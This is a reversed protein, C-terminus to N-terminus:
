TMLISFQKLPLLALVQVIHLTPDVNLLLVHEAGVIADCQKVPVNSHM